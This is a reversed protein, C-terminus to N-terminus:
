APTLVIWWQDDGSDMRHLIDGPRHRKSVPPYLYCHSPRGTLEPLDQDQLSHAVRAILVHALEESKGGATEEDWHPAVETWLHVRMVSAVREEIDAMVDAAGSNIAARIANPVQDLEEKAFVDVLPPMKLDRVNQPLATWFVIPLFRVERIDTYVRRGRDQDEASTETRDRRLDLVVVDCTGDRV